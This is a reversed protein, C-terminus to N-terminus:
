FYTIKVTVKGDAELPFCARQFDPRNGIGITSFNSFGVGEVPLIFGKDVAGNMNEDHVASVAYNGRRLGTFVTMSAGDHIEAEQKLLYKEYHEDPISGDENYLAFLVVGESNRLGKVEVTLSVGSSTDSFAGALSVWMFLSSLLIVTILNKPKKMVPITYLIQKCSRIRLSNLVSDTDAM